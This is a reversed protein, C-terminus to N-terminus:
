QLRELVKSIDFKDYKARARWRSTRSTAFVALNRIEAMDRPYTGLKCHAM